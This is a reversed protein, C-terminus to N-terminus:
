IQFPSIGFSEASTCNTMVQVQEASLNEDSRFYFFAQIHPMQDHEIVKLYFPTCYIILHMNEKM